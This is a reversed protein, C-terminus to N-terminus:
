TGVRNRLRRSVLMWLGVLFLMPAWSVIAQIVTSPEREITIDVNHARLLDFTPPYGAPIRTYFTFSAHTADARTRGRVETGSVEVSQVANGSVRELFESYSIVNGPKTAFLQSLLVVLVIIVVWLIATKVTSSM